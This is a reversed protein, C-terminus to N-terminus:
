EKKKARLKEQELEDQQLKLLMKRAADLVFESHSRYGLKNHTELFKKIEDVFATPIKVNSYDM